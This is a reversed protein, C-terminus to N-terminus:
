HNQEVIHEGGAAFHAPGPNRRRLGDMLLYIVPTTYFPFSNRLSSAASSPPVFLSDQGRL